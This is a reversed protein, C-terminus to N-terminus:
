LQQAMKARVSRSAAVRQGWPTTPPQHGTYHLFYLPLICQPNTVVFINGHQKVHNYDVLLACVFMKPEDRVYSLSVGPDSSLYVGVGYASGNIVSVGNTIGPVKFGENRISYHSSARTGHFVMEVRLHPHKRRYADFSKQLYNSKIDELHSFRCPASQSIKGTVRRELDPWEKLADFPINLTSAAPPKNNYGHNPKPGNKRM